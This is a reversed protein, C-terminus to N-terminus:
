DWGTPVVSAYGCPGNIGDSGECLGVDPYNYGGAIETNTSDFTANNNSNQIDLSTDTYTNATHDRGNSYTSNYNYNQVQEQVNNFGNDGYNSYSSNYNNYSEVKVPEAATRFDRGGYNGIWPSRQSGSSGRGGPASSQSYQILWSPVEQKAEQLLGVLGKALPMNEQRYPKTTAKSTKCLQSTQKQAPYM